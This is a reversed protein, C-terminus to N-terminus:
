RSRHVRMPYFQVGASDLSPAGSFGSMAALSYWRAADSLVANAAEPAFALDAAEKAFEEAVLVQASREGRETKRKLAEPSLRELEELEAKLEIRLTEQNGSASASKDLVGVTGQEDAGVVTNSLLFLTAFFCISQGIFRFM